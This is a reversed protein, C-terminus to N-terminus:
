RAWGRVEDVLRREALEHGPAEVNLTILRCGLGEAANALNVAATARGKVWSENQPKRGLQQARALRRAAALRTGYLHVLTVQWGADVATGLFRRNALRAGEALLLPAESAALGSAVYACAAGIVASPLSDTGSFADRRRGLEVAAIHQHPGAVLLDRAPAVAGAPDLPHREYPETLRAMLTSKGVGPEGSLYVLRLDSM